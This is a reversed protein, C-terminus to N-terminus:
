KRIYFANSMKFEHFSHYRHSKLKRFQKVLQGRLFINYKTHTRYNRCKLYFHLDNSSTKVAKRM